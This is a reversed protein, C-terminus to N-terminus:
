ASDLLQRFDDPLPAHFTRPEASGPPTFRIESAHLVHRPAIRVSLPDRKAGYLLDGVVPFGLAALHVRIQHTRGTEPHARLLSYPRNEIRLREKVAFRTVAPRGSSVLAMRQRHSPDRAIAKDIIGREPQVDGICVALYTKQVARQKFQAQLNALAAPTRAIVLVGSTEKDLRHVIGPREADGVDAIDPDHALLANVITGAANGAGPHVVVGAPKNLVLLADDQYLVDLAISEPQPGAEAAPEPAYIEIVDGVAVSFRAPRVVGNVRVADSDILKQAASRSLDPVLSAIAKDLRDPRTVVVRHQAM